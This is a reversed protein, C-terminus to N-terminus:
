QEEELKDLDNAVITEWVAEDSTLAEYEDELSKYLLSCLDEVLDLLHCEVADLETNMQERWLEGFPHDSDLYADIDEVNISFNAIGNYRYNTNWNCSIYGNLETIYKNLIPYDNLRGGLAKAYDEIKGGFSAGDGQSWFGSWSIDRANNKNLRAISVGQEDCREEFWSYVDEHWWDGDVNIDRYKEILQEKTMITHEKVQTM